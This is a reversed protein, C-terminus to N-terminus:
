TRGHAFEGELADIRNLLSRTWESCSLAGEGIKALGDSLSLRWPDSMKMKGEGRESRPEASHNM